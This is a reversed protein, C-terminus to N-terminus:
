EAQGAEEQEEMAEGEDAEGHGQGTEEEAKGRLKKKNRRNQHDKVLETNGAHPWGSWLQYVFVRNSGVAAAALAVDSIAVRPSSYPCPPMPLQLSAIPTSSTSSSTTSTSSSTTTLSSLLHFSLNNQCDLLVAVM